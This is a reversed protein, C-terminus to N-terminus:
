EVIISYEDKSIVEGIIAYDVPNDKLEEILMDAKAKDVSILLGGSTQPDFLIDKVEEEINENIYARNGVFSRNKYAGEPILGMKAYEKASELIPVKNSFIKITVSSGLAMELAHGILGFGTIDTCSNVGVKMMADKGVKNLTTMVKVADNYTKQDTMQAKIATNIIGLGIPKTLVLLDGVKANCNKIVKNPHIFGTVSLGYKPENDEVTHGGVLLANAEKVKDYGGKLIEAMIDPHLCNPFCIINMALKPEGGMAYVDSLSNTAAIQGFTYPDDVVPTFFDVTQIIAINDDIKYVAADDSTDIGVILNDDQMKPLQCLVQAM